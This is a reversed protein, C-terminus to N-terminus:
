LLSFVSLTGSEDGILVYDRLSSSFSGVASVPAPGCMEGVVSTGLDGAVEFAQVTAGVCALGTAVPADEDIIGLLDLCGFPGGLLDLEVVPTDDDARVHAVGGEDLGLVFTGDIGTVDFEIPGLVGNDDEESPNTESSITDWPGEYTLVQTPGGVTLYTRDLMHWDDVFVIAEPFTVQDPGGDHDKVAYPSTLARGEIHAGATAVFMAQADPSFSVHIADAADLTSVPQEDWAEGSSRVALDGEQSAVAFLTRTGDFYAAGSVLPPTVTGSPIPVEAISADGEDLRYIKLEEGAAVAFFINSGYARRDEAIIWDVPQDSVAVAEVRELTRGDFYPECLAEPPLDTPFDDPGGMDQVAGTSESESDGSESEGTDTPSESGGVCSGQDPGDIWEGAPCEDTPIACFGSVCEGLVGGRECEAPECQGSSGARCSTLALAALCLVVRIPHTM